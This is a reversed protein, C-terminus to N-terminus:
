RGSGAESAGEDEVIEDLDVKHSGLPMMPLDRLDLRKAHPKVEVDVKDGPRIGLAAAEKKSIPLAYVNGWERIKKTLHM